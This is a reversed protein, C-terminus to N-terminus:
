HGANKSSKRTMTARSRVALPAGEVLLVVVVDAVAVVTVVVRVVAMALGCVIVVVAAVAVELVVIVVGIVVGTAIVSGADDACREDDDSAAGPM